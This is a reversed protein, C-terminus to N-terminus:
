EKLGIYIYIEAQEMSDNRYEEFDCVFARPLDMQWLKEWFDAVAKHMDGRVVFKAYTGAPITRTVAGAPLGDKADTECAVVVTYDDKDTGAYDTYIGLAMDNKKGPIAACVGDEYFRKWLNGIVMGMDPASNNTRAEVGVVNKAELRVTEYDM